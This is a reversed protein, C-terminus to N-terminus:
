PIFRVVGGQGGAVWFTGLYDELFNSGPYSNTPLGDATTLNLWNGGDEFFLGGGETGLAIQGEEDVQISRISYDADFIEDFRDDGDFQTLTSDIAVLINGDADEALAYVYPFFGPLGNVEDWRTFTELTPDTADFRYLATAAGVWVDDGASLISYVTRASREEERESDNLLDHYIFNEGDWMTVGGYTGFWLNGASDETIATVGGDFIGAGAEDAKAVGIWSGDEYNYFSAGSSHGVWMGNPRPYFTEVSVFGLDNEFNEWSTDPDYSFFRQAGFGGGVWISGDAGQAIANYSNSIPLEEKQLNAWASGDYVSVGSGRSGYYIRGDEAVIITNNFDEAMGEEDEFTTLCSATDPDFNCIGGFTSNTWLTRGDPDVTLEDAGTWFPWGPIDDSSFFTFQNDGDVRTLGGGQAFWVTGDDTVAIADVFDEFADTELDDLNSNDDDYYSITGDARINSVAAIHAVWIEELNGKVAIAEAFGSELDDFPAYYTWLDTSADYVDVGDVNYGILLTNLEPVCTLTVISSDSSMGSNEATWNEWTDSAPDYISLGEETGLVVRPEPIPCVVIAESVNNLIGDLTTWKQVFEGSNHDWAIMGGSSAGYLIGDLEAVDFVLNGNTYMVPGTELEPTPLDEWLLAGTTIIATAAEETVTEATPEPEATPEAAVAEVTPEEPLVIEALTPKSLEITDLMADFVPMFEAEREPPVAGAFIFVARDNDVIAIFQIFGDVGDSTVDYTAIAAPKGAVTTESETGRLTFTDGTDDTESASAFLATFAQLVTIPQSDDINESLMELIEGDISTVTFMAGEALGPNGILEASSGIQIDGSSEDLESVWDAPYDIAVGILDSNITTFNDAISEPSSVATDEDEASTTEAAPEPTPTPEEGGCAVLLLTFLLLLIVSLTFRKKKYM